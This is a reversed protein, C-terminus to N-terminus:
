TLSVTMAYITDTSISETLSELVPSLVLLFAMFILAKLSALVGAPATRRLLCVNASLVNIVACYVACKLNVCWKECSIPM